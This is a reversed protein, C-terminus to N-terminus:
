NTVTLHMMSKTPRLCLHLISETVKKAFKLEENLISAIKQRIKFTFGKYSTYM